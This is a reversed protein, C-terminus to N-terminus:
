PMQKARHAALIERVRKERELQRVLIRERWEPTPMEKARKVARRTKNKLRVGMTKYRACKVKNRGIKRSSGGPGKASM